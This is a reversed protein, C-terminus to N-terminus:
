DTVTDISIYIPYIFM